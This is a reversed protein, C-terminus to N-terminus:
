NAPGDDEEVNVAHEVLQAAHSLADVRVQDLDQGVYERPGFAAM